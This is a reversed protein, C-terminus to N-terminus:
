RSLQQQFLIADDKAVDKFFAPCYDVQLKEFFFARFETETKSWRAALDKSPGKAVTKGLAHMFHARFKQYNRKYAKIPNGKLQEVNYHKKIKRVIDM